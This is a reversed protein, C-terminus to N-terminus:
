VQRPDLRGEPAGESWRGLHNATDLETTKRGFWIMLMTAILCIGLTIAAKVLVILVVVMGVHGSLLPDLGFIM